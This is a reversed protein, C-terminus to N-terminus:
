KESGRQRFSSFHLNLHKLLNWSKWSNPGWDRLSFIASKSTKSSKLIKLKKSGRGWLFLFSESKINCCIKINEVKQGGFILFICIQINWFIKLNEVNWVERNSLFAFQSIESSKIIKLIETGGGGLILFICNRINWFIKLNEVKQVGFILLICIQINWFIKLNEVNWVERNSLFAFKSIESSKIIKLKESGRIFYISIQINWFIKLNEVQQVGLSFFASKPHKLLTEVNWIGWGGRFILM